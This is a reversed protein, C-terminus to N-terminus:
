DKVVLERPTATLPEHGTATVVFSQTITIGTNALWLGGMLHFAAGPELVTLDTRRISATREGWTPTYAIGISYGLRNEKEIGHASMSKRWALEIGECTVGPRVADLSTEVAEIVYSALDRYSQPPRGFYVTRSMPAHYRLRCGSLEINAVSNTDIRRDTFIPHPERAREGFGMHPPSTAPLGGYNETGSMQAHYIAAAVDCQRVGPAAVEVARKMMRETIVGAERMYAIERESKIFRVWNVLLEADKFAVNPLAKQLEAHDRATYYYAGMEVGVTKARPAERLLMQAIFQAAHRDPSHVYIDPYPIIREDPLNTTVIASQKDISRGIWMPLDVDQFVLLAQVTYFSWADYGTLYNINAPETVILVDIDQAQMRQKVRLMRQQYEADSFHLIRM